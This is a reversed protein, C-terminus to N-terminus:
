SRRKRLTYYRLKIAGLSRGPFRECVEEWNMGQKDKLSLLLAEESELWLKRIRQSYRETFEEHENEEDCDHDNDENDSHDMEYTAADNHFGNIWEANPSRRNCLDLASSNCRYGLLVWSDPSMQTMRIVKGQEGLVKRSLPRQSRPPRIISAENYSHEDELIEGVESGSGKRSIVRRNSKGRVDQEFQIEQSPIISRRTQSHEEVAGQVYAGDGDELDYHNTSSLALSITGHERHDAGPHSLIPSDGTSLCSAQHSPDLLPTPKPTYMSETIPSQSQREDMRRRKASHLNEPEPHSVIDPVAELITTAADAISSRHSRKQPTPPGRVVGTVGSFTEDEVPPLVHYTIENDEASFAYGVVADLDDRQEAHNGGNATTLYCSKNQYDSIENSRQLAEM